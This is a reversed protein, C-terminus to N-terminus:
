EECNEKEFLRKIKKDLKDMEAKYYMDFAKALKADFEKSIFYENEKDQLSICERNLLIECKKNKALFLFTRLRLWAGFFM